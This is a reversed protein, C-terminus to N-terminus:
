RRGRRIGKVGPQRLVAIGLRRLVRRSTATIQGPEADTVSRAPPDSLNQTM